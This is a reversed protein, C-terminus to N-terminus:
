RRAGGARGAGDGLGPSARPPPPTRLHWWRRLPPPQGRSSLNAPDSRLWAGFGAGSGAGLGVGLWAGLGGPPHASKSGRGSGRGLPHATASGLNQAGPDRTQAADQAPDEAQPQRWIEASLRPPEGVTTM